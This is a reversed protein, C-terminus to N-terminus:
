GANAVPVYNPSNRIAAKKANERRCYWNIFLFDVICLAFCVMITIEASVYRPGDSPRFTQPGIVNGVCYGILYLAAVTTKRTYGSINSSILSLMTAGPAPQCQTMYYGVLRGTGNEIPLVIILLVGVMAILCPICAVLTRQRLYDGLYGNALCAVIVVAGGPMGYLLAEEKTYGFGVILQSFFNTVLVTLIIILQLPLPSSVAETPSIM